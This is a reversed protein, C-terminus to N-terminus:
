LTQRTRLHSARLEYQEAIEVFKSATKPDSTETAFRRCLDRQETLLAIEKKM